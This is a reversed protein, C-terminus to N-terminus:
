PIQIQAQLGAISTTEVRLIPVPMGDIRVETGDRFGNTSFLAGSGPYATNSSNILRTPTEEYLREVTDTAIRLRSISGDAQQFAVTRGDDSLIASTIQTPTDAIRRRSDTARDSIELAQYNRILIRGAGHDLSFGFLDDDTRFITRQAGTRLNIEILSLIRNPSESRVLAFRGDASIAAM